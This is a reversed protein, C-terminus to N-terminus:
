IQTDNKLEKLVESWDGLNKQRYLKVSDYLYSKDGKMGWRSHMTYPLLIKTKVGLSGALHVTFNDISVILDCASILSALGDLDNKNDIEPVQIIEIGLNNKLDTIENINQDYQLSVIKSNDTKLVTVLDNLLINRFSSMQIKSKTYWSIGILKQKKDKILKNRIKLKKQEDAKLYGKSTTTFSTLDERFHKYISGMPIHADYDQESIDKRDSEYIIDKSFSRKFLPILRKDCHVLLKESKAKLESLMSCFMIEDGIGQEKWTFVRKGSEGNWLPKTSIFKQGINHKTKWRWESLDYAKKFDNKLLLTFSLNNYADAYDPKLKIAKNYNDESEELMGLERFVIGLNNYAEPYNTKLM